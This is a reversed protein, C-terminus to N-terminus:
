KSPGQFNYAINHPVCLVTAIITCMGKSIALIYLPQESDVGGEGQARFEFTDSNLIFLQFSRSYKSEM